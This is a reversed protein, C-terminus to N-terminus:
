QVTRSAVIPTSWLSSSSLPLTVSGLGLRLGNGLKTLL